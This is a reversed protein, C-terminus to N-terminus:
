RWAPRRRKRSAKRGFWGKPESPATWGKPEHSSGILAQPPRSGLRLPSSAALKRRPPAISLLTGLLPAGAAYELDASVRVRRDLAEALLALIVGLGLGAGTALTFVVFFKPFAASGPPVAKDLVSINAFSLRSQLRAAGAAKNAADIQEQRADVERQLSLLEDRKSQVSIMRQLQEARSKELFAIQDQLAKGRAAVESAVQSELSRKTALLNLLKPNNEGVEARQKTIEANVTALNSKIAVLTSSDPLLSLNKRADAAANGTQSQLLVLQSRATSLENTVAVLQSNESDTGDKLALINNDRQFKALKERAAQLEAQIKDMQPEFWRATQQAANTKMEVASDIFAAMFTNAILAAQTPSRTKYKIAMVNAGDTFRAELSRLLSESAIWEEVSMRGRSSSNQYAAAMGPDRALNLRKVVETAVRQSQALAILNGQLIRVMQAGSAQGTVPDVQGPDISATAVADYRPPVLLMIGGAGALTSILALIIIWVRRSLISLIQAPTM